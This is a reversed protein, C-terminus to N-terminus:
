DFTVKSKVNAEIMEVEQSAAEPKLPQPLGSLSSNPFNSIPVASPLNPLSSSGGIYNSNSASSYSKKSRTIKKDNANRVVLVLKSKSISSIFDAIEDAPVEFTIGTANTMDASSPIGVTKAGEFSIIKVNELRWENSDSASYIDVNSGVTMKDSKGQFNEAPLTLARFGNKLEVDDNSVKAIYATTLLSGSTISKLLIKNIVESRNEFATSNKEPFQKFDVDEDSVIEGAKLDKTTIAYAYTENENYTQAKTKQMAEIMKQQDTLQSRMNKFASYAVTTALIAVVIALIIKSTNKNKRM